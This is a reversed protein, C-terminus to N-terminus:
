RSARVRHDRRAPNSPVRANLPGSAGFPRVGEARVVDQARSREERPACSRRAPRNALCPHAGDEPRYHEVGAGEDGDLAVVCLHAREDLERERM